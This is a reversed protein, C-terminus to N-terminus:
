IKRGSKSCVTRLGETNGAANAPGVMIPLSEFLPLHLDEIYKRPASHKAAPSMARPLGGGGEKEERM